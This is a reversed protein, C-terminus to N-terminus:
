APMEFDAAGFDHEGCSVACGNSHLKIPRYEDGECVIIMGNRFLERLQGKESLVPKTFEPDFYLNKDENAYVITAKVHHNDYNSYIKHM